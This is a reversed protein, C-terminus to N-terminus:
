LRARDTGAVGVPQGIPEDANVQYMSGVLDERKQATGYAGVVVVDDLAVASLELTVNIVSRGNIQETLPKMGVYSFTLTQPEKDSLTISYRGDVNTVAIPGTKGQRVTVGILPENSDDVVTGSVVTQDAQNEVASISTISSMDSAETIVAASAPSWALGTSAVLAMLYKIQTPKEM